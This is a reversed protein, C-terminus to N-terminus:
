KKFGTRYPYSFIRVPSLTLWRTIMQGCSDWRTKSDNLLERVPVIVRESSLVDIFGGQLNGEEIFQAFADRRQGSSRIHRVHNRVMSIPDRNVAQIYEIPAVDSLDATTFNGLVNQCVINIVHPFCRVFNNPSFDIGRPALIRGMERITALNVSANDM